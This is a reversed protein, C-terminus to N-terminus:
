ESDPYSGLVRVYSCHEGLLIVAKSLRRDELHGECDVFFIYEWAKRKSPRSEIKTMNIRYRRFAVLANYLAGVRDALSFMLSTRDNGTPPSCQRGLVLFRTANAINDQIDHDLVPLDYREAALLGAIAAAKKEKGALEASRANSSTEVIEVRPLHAHVWARCQGLAQPHAYLKRVQSRPCDALLCHQVPLVIQAVIKLDSDVFMDLTHTVAGETSNEVPVVGYDARHKSVETFVDAITKQPAYRLSAGFRQIAAQHTFTAEPGLYAVTLSKELSLAGSMVERYVARLSENTLPGHNKRCIRQLVARERHPAYIEEKAKRKIEGIALVHKTRENLLRVIQADFKDIAKRHDPINM